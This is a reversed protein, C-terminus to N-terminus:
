SSSSRRRPLLKLLGCLLKTKFSRIRLSVGFVVTRYAATVSRWVNQLFRFLKWVVGVLLLWIPLSLVASLLVVDSDADIGLSLALTPAQAVFQLLLFDGPLLFVDYIANGLDDLTMLWDTIM